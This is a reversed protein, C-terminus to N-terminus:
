TRGKAVIFRVIKGGIVWSFLWGLSFVIVQILMMEAECVINHALSDSDCISLLYVFLVAYMVIFGIYCFIGANAPKREPRRLLYFIISSVIPLPWFSFPAFLLPADRDVSYQHSYLSYLALTAITLVVFAVCGAVITRPNAASQSRQYM